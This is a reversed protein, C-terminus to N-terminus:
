REGQAPQTKLMLPAPARHRPHQSAFHARKREPIPLCSVIAAERRDLFAPLFARAAFTREFTDRVFIRSSRPTATIELMKRKGAPFAM